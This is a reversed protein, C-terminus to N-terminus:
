ELSRLDRLHSLSFALVDCLDRKEHATLIQGDLMLDPRIKINEALGAILDSLEACNEYDVPTVPVIKGDALADASIGLMKCIIVINQISANNVGRNMISALTSNPLGAQTTFNVVTGYRAIIMEKLKNEITM